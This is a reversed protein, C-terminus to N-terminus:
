GGGDVSERALGAAVEHTPEGFSGEGDGAVAAVGVGFDGGAADGEAFEVQVGHFAAEAGAQVEAAFDEVHVAADAAEVELPGPGAAVDGASAGCSGERWSDM